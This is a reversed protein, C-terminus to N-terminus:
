MSMVLEDPNITDFEDIKKPSCLDKHQDAENHIVGPQKIGGRLMIGGSSIELKEGNKYIKLTCLKCLQKIKEKKM